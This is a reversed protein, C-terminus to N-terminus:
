AREWRNGEEPAEKTWPITATRPTFRKPTIIATTEELSLCNAMGSPSPVWM